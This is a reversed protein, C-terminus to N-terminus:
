SIMTKEVESLKIGRRRLETVFKAGDIGSELSISGKQIEGKALMIAVISAPYATTREMATFGTEDDHFDMIDLTIETDKGNRKGKCVARLVVLDKDEPFDIKPAVVTHFLDRPSIKNEGIKVPETDLLGLDLM